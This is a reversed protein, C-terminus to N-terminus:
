IEAKDGADRSQSIPDVQDSALKTNAARYDNIPPIPGEPPVDLEGCRITQQTSAALQMAEAQAHALRSVPKGAM